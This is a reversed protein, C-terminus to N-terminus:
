AESLFFPVSILVHVSGALVGPSQGYPWLLNHEGFLALFTSSSAVLLPYVGVEAVPQIFIGTMEKFKSNIQM